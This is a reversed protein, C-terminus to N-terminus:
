KVKNGLSDFTKVTILKGDTYNEISKLKSNPYYSSQLGEKIGNSYLESTQLNGYIYFHENIGDRMKDKFCGRSMVKGNDWYLLVIKRSTDFKYVLIKSDIKNESSDVKLLLYDKEDYVNKDEKCSFLIIIVIIFKYRKM